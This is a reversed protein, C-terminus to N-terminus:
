CQYRGGRFRREAGSGGLNRFINRFRPQDNEAVAFNWGGYILHCGLERLLRDRCSPLTARPMLPSGPPRARATTERLSAEPPGCCPFHPQAAVAPSATFPQMALSIICAAVLLGRVTIRKLTSNMIRNMIKREKKLIKRATAVDAEFYITSVWLTIKPISVLRQFM